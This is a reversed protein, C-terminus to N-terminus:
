DLINTIEGDHWLKDLKYFERTEPKFINVLFDLYDMLIWRAINYGEIHKPRVKDNKMNELVNDSIAQAQRSSEANCIILYDTFSSIEGIKIVTISSGQKDKILNVVKKIVPPLKKEEETM